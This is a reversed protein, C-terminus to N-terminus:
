LLQRDWTRLEESLINEEYKQLFSVGNMGKVFKRCKQPPYGIFDRSNDKKITVSILLIYM